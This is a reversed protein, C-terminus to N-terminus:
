GRPISSFIKKPLKLKNFVLTNLVSNRSTGRFYLNIQYPKGQRNKVIWSARFKNKSIPVCKAKKLLRLLGWQNFAEVTLKENGYATSLRILAGENVHQGPWNFKVWEQPGNKYRYYKRGTEFLIEKVGRIPLPYLDFSFKLNGHNFIGDSFQKSISLSDLFSQSFGMGVSLWERNVFSGRSTQILDAIQDNYFGWLIGDNKQYFEALDGETVDEGSNDFPFKNQIENQYVKFVEDQWKLQIGIKAENVISRWAETIPSLLLPELLKQSSRSNVSRILKKIELVADKLPSNRSNQSKFISQVFQISDRNVDSSSSLKDLENQVLELSQFYKSLTESKVNALLNLSQYKKKVHATTLKYESSNTIYLEQKVKSFLKAISGDKQYLSRFEHNADDLSSFQAVHISSLFKLWNDAYESFYINLMQQKLKDALHSNIVKFKPASNLKYQEIDMVWDVESATKVKENIVPLVYNNWGEYTYLKSIKTDSILLSQDAGKLLDALSYKTLELSAQTSILAYMNNANTPSYLDKRAQSILRKNPDIRIKSNQKSLYFDLYYSILDKYSESNLLQDQNKINFAKEYWLPTIISSAFAVDLYAPYTLMMYAKLTSYYKGRLVMKQQENARKWTKSYTQLRKVLVEKMPLIGIDLWNQQLISDMVPIQNHGRYLGLRMYFPIHQKYAKLKNLHNVNDHANEIRIVSTPDRELLQIANIIINEGEKIFKNNFNLSVSFSFFLITLFSLGGVVSYIKIRKLLTETNRNQSFAHANKFLLKHFFDDVFFVKEIPEIDTKTGISEFQKPLKPDSSQTVEITKLIDGETQLNSVFYAGMIRIPEDYPNKDALQNLIKKISATAAEFQHPFDFILRKKDQDMEISINSFCQRVLQHVLNKFQNNIYTSAKDAKSYESLNVGWIQLREEESINKFFADFGNICDIKTFVFYVPILHGLQHYLEGVRTSINDIIEQLRQGEALMLDTIGLTVIIGNLPAKKRAKKLVSLFSFWERKDKEDGYETYRGATDLFIAKESFWWDCNRTGGIGKHKQISKGGLTSPFNLGSNRLFTSKGHSPPGIVAFWPLHYLAQEGKKNIGLSSTKLENITELMRQRLYDDQAAAFANKKKDSNGWFPAVLEKAQNDLKHYRVVFFVVLSLIIVNLLVITKIPIQWYLMLKIILYILGVAALFFIVLKRSLVNSIKSQFISKVENLVPYIFSKLNFM